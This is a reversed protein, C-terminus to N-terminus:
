SAPSRTLPAVALPASHRTRSGIIAKRCPEEVWRYLCHAAAFACGLAVARLLWPMGFNRIAIDSLYMFLIHVLYLSYSIRGLYVMTPTSLFRAAGGGSRALFFVVLAAVVAFRQHAIDAKALMNSAGSGVILLILAFTAITSDISTRRTLSFVRWLLVGACFNVALRPMRRAIGLGLELDPYRYWLAYAAYLGAALLIAAAASRIRVVGFAVLPFFLYAVWEASITWSPGNWPFRSVPEWAHVLLFAKVLDILRTANPSLLRQGTLAVLPVVIVFVVLVFAHVPYIRAFRKRLYSFYSRPTWDTQAYNHALVFGSLVFFVEVGMYGASLVWDLPTGLFPACFFAHFLM